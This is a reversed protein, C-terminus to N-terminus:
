TAIASWEDLEKRLTRVEHILKCLICVLPDHKGSNSITHVTEQYCGSLKIPAWQKKEIAKLEDETM